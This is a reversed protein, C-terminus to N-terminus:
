HRRYVEWAIAENESQLMKAIGFDVIKIQEDYTVLVNSPKLDRHLVGAEHAARIVNAEILLNRELFDVPLRDNALIVAIVTGLRAFDLLDMSSKLEQGIGGAGVFGMIAAERTFEYVPDRPLRLLMM